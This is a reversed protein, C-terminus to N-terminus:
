PDVDTQQNTSEHHRTKKHFKNNKMTLQMNNQFIM